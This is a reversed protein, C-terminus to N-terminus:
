EVMAQLKRAQLEFRLMACVQIQLDAQAGNKLLVDVVDAYGNESALMLATKGCQYFMACAENYQSHVCARCCPFCVENLYDVPVDHELLVEVVAVHGNSAALMLAKSM